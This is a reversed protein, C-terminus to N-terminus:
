RLITYGSDQLAEDLKLSLRNKHGSDPYALAAYLKGKRSGAPRLTGASLPIVGEGSAPTFLVGEQELRQLLDGYLADGKSILPIQILCTQMREQHILRDVQHKILSMSKRANIEVLPALTGDRLLMSDVCVDGHYGDAYLEKGINHMLEWYSERELKELLMPGPSHSEGFAFGNNVLQQVSLISIEGEPDINFQCSFDTERDLYPELVFRITRDKNRGSELYGALRRLTRENDVLQNGKGSVGYEDKILFSGRELLQQGTQLMETVGSVAIGVNPLSLRDRMTISYTKTNVKRVTQEDPLHTSMRHRRAAHQTGPLVAFPELVAGEPILSGATGEPELRGLLEFVNLGDLTGSTESEGTLPCLNTSFSHGLSRLYDLQAKDMGGRTLLIDDSGCFVFLMEDMAQVISVAGADPISPLVAM